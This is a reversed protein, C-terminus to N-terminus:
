INVVESISPVKEYKGSLIAREITNLLIMVKLGDEINPLPDFNKREGRIYSNFISSMIDVTYALRSKLSEWGSSGEKFSDVRESKNNAKLTGEAGYVNVDAGHMPLSVAGSLWVRGILGDKYKIAAIIDDYGLFSRNKRKAATAQVEDVQQSALWYNLDVAHSGGGYLFYMDDISGKRWKAGANVKDMDHLYTTEISLLDGLNGSRIEENIKGFAPTARFHTGVLVSVNRSKSARYITISQELNRTLPKEVIVPKNGEISALAGEVHLSDPTCIHVVDARDVAEELTGAASVDRYKGLVNRKTENNPEYIIVKSGLRRQANIHYDSVAGAGIIAATFLKKHNEVM